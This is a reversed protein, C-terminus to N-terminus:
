FRAGGQGGRMKDLKEIQDPMLGPRM